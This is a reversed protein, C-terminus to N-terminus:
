SLKTTLNENVDAPTIHVTVTYGGDKKVATDTTFGEPKAIFKLDKVEGTSTVTAEAYIDTKLGYGILKPVEDTSMKKEYIADVKGLADETTPPEIGLIAVVATSRVTRINADKVSNEAKNLSGVFLPVAIATLVAIIAVVILLEALTFGKKGSKKLNQIM